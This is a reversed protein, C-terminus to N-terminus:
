DGLVERKETALADVDATVIAVNSLRVAAEDASRLQYGMIGQGMGGYKVVYFGDIVYSGIYWYADPANIQVGGMRGETVSIYAGEAGANADVLYGEPSRDDSPQVTVKLGVVTDVRNALFTTFNEANAPTVTGVILPVDKQSQAMVPGSILGVAVLSVLRIM